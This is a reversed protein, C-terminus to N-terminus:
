FITGANSLTNAIPVVGFLGSTSTSDEFRIMGNGQCLNAARRHDDLEVGPRPERVGRHIDATCCNPGNGTATAGHGSRRDEPEQTSKKRHTSSSLPDISLERGSPGM